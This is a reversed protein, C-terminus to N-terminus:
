GIVPAKNQVYHLTPNSIPFFFFYHSHWLLQTGQTERVIEGMEAHKEIVTTLSASIPSITCFLSLGSWKLKLQVWKEVGKKRWKGRENWSGEYKERRKTKSISELREFLNVSNNFNCPLNTAFRRYSVISTWNERSFKFYKLIRFISVQWSQPSMTWVPTASSTPFKLLNSFFWKSLSIKFCIAKQITRDTSPDSNVSNANQRNEFSSIM